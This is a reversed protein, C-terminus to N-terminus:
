GHARPARRAGPVRDRAGSGAPLEQVPGGRQHPVRHCSGTCSVDVGSIGNQEFFLQCTALFTGAIAHQASITPGVCCPSRFWYCRRQVPWHVALPLFRPADSTMRDAVWRRGACLRVKLQIDEQKFRLVEGQAALIQEQILDVGTIMETV